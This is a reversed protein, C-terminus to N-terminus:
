YLLLGDIVCPLASLDVDINPNAETFCMADNCKLENIIRQRDKTSLKMYETNTLNLHTIDKPLKTM